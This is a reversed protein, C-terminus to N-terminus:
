PSTVLPAITEAVRDLAQDIKWHGHNRDGVWNSFGRVVTLPVGAARCAFAVAFSEMDEGLVQPFRDRRWSSERENASASCVTLLAPRPLDPRSANISEAPQAIPALTLSTTSRDESFWNWGMAVADIFADGQGVGIGDIWVSDFCAADGLRFVGGARDRYLGAIGALIVRSPRHRSLEAAAAVGAAIVGFGITCCRWRSDHTSIANAIRERERDTPVLILDPM